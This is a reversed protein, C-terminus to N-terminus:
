HGDLAVEPVGATDKGDQSLPAVSIQCISPDPDMRGLTCEVHERIERGEGSPESLLIHQVAGHEALPQQLFFANSHQRSSRELPGMLLESGPYGVDIKDAVSGQC